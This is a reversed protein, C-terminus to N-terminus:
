EAKAGRKRYKWRLTLGNVINTNKRAHIYNELNTCWELNEVRNNKKNYDIHNVQPKNNENFIFSNAVPRHVKISKIKGNFCLCVYMYGKNDEYQRLIKEKETYPRGNKRIITRRLSKVNGLNSVQYYNEYGQIDKWIEIENM